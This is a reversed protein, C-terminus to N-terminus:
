KCIGEGSGDEKYEEMGHCHFTQQAERNLKKCLKLPAVGHQKRYENHAKLVEDNFQKSASKGM